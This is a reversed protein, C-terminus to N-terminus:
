LAIQVPKREKFYTVASFGASKLATYADKVYRGVHEPVHADSGVTVYEGGAARFMSFIHILSLPVDAGLTLGLACLAAQSLSTEYLANLGVLVAAADASGGAMGAGSPIRKILRVSAGGSIGAAKFFANAARVALNDSGQPLSQESCSFSIDKETRSIQLTDCLSVSQMVMDMLHYGDARKGVVDLSLNIKAYANVTVCSM